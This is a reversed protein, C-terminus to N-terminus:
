RPVYICSSKALEFNVMSWESSTLIAAPDPVFSAVTVITRAPTAASIDDKIENKYASKEWTCALLFQCLSLDM